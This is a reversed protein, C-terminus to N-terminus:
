AAIGHECARHQPAKRTHMHRADRAQVALCRIRGTAGAGGLRGFLHLDMVCAFVRVQEDLDAADLGAPQTALLGAAWGAARGKLAAKKAPRRRRVTRAAPKLLGAPPASGASAPNPSPSTNADSALALAAAAYEAVGMTKTAQALTAAAPQKLM